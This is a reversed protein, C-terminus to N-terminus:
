IPFLCQSTGNLTLKKAQSNRISSTILSAYSCQPKQYRPDEHIDDEAELGGRPTKRKTRLGPDPSQLCEHGTPKLHQTWQIDTLSSDMDEQEDDPEPTGSLGPSGKAPLTHTAPKPQVATSAAAAAAAHNVTNGAGVPFGALMQQVAANAIGAGAPAAAFGSSEVSTAPWGMAANGSMAVGAAGVVGVGFAAGPATISM